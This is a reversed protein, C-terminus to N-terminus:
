LVCLKRVTRMFYGDNRLNENFIELRNVMDMTKELYKGKEGQYYTDRSYKM